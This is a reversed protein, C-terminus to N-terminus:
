LFKGYQQRYSKLHSQMHSLTWISSLNTDILPIVFKDCGFMRRESKKRSIRTKTKRAMKICLLVKLGSQLFDDIDGKWPWIRGPFGHKNCDIVLSLTSPFGDMAFDIVFISFSRWTLIKYWYKTISLNNTCLWILIYPHALKNLYVSIEKKFIVMLLVNNKSQINM